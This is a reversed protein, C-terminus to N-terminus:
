AGAGDDVFQATTGEEVLNELGVWEVTDPEDYGKQPVTGDKYLSMCNGQTDNSNKPGFDKDMFDRDHNAKLGKWITRVKALAAKESRLMTECGQFYDASTLQYDKYSLNIKADLQDELDNELLPENWDLNYEMSFENFENWEIFAFGLRDLRGELADEEWNELEIKLKNEIFQFM